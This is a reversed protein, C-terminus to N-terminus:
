NALELVEKYTEIYIPLNLSHQYEQQLKEYEKIEQQLRKLEPPSYSWLLSNILYRSLFILNGTFKKGLEYLQRPNLITGRSLYEGQLILTRLTKQFDEKHLIENVLLEYTTLFETLQLHFERTISPVFNSISIQALSSFFLSNLASEPLFTVHINKWRYDEKHYRSFIFIDIDNYTPQFLFSGSLLIKQNKHKQEMNHLIKIASEIREPLLFERGLIAVPSINCLKLIAQVKPKIFKYYYTKETSTLEKRQLKDKLVQLQRATFIRGQLQGEAHQVMELSLLNDM